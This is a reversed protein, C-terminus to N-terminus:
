QKQKLVASYAQLVRVIDKGHPTAFYYKKHIGPVVSLTFGFRNRNYTYSSIDRHNFRRINEKTGIALIEIGYENVSLVVSEPMGNGETNKVTWFTGGYFNWQRVRMLYAIRADEKKMGILKAHDQYILAEWEELKTESKLLPAPILGAIKDKLFGAVHIKSDHDGYTLQMQYAALELADTKSCPYNGSQVDAIAQIYNYSIFQLKSAPLQNKIFVRRKYVLKSDKEWEKKLKEWENRDAYHKKDEADLGATEHVMLKCPRENDEICRYEGGKLFFLGFTEKEELEIKKAVEDSLESATINSSM